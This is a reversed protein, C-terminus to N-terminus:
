LSESVSAVIVSCTNRLQIQDIAYLNNNYLKIYKQSGQCYTPSPSTKSVKAQAFHRKGGESDGQEAKIYPNKGVRIINKKKRFRQSSDRPPRSKQFHHYLFLCIPFFPFSNTSHSSLHSSLSIVTLTVVYLLFIFFCYTM